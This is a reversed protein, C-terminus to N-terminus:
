AGKLYQHAVDAIDIQPSQEYCEFITRDSPLAFWEFASLISSSVDNREIRKLLAARVVLRPWRVFDRIEHGWIYDQRAIHDLEFELARSTYPEVGNSALLM